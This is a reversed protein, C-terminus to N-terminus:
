KGLLKLVFANAREWQEPYTWHGTEEALFLTKPATIVNYAAYMSTPPCTVDNYGWSYFGPVKLHRAFNVVDYYKSTEIKQSTNNFSLNGANFLHPWGGARNHLYGTVDSLAPYFAVLGKIRSDLAATVISLAGGQSGGMVVINNGDFQPLSFIYDVARVCGVYVRKYYYRDKDDLNYNQYGDLSARRINDYVSAELTVPIGHIGIELTIVGKEANGVDGNYARVGAGPVRLLAPYKGEAKPVCLIGFLRSGPKYNQINVEYVNVKETCREPLLRVKADMPIKANAAKAEEWFGMFDTPEDTTPRIQEPSFAATALGVYDKGEYNAILRCRLFGADKMTGGDITTTGNKLVLNEKKVPPMMEPGVEYWVSANQVPINNKTIAVNFKVKENPKYVWDSKEPAVSVEILTQAPQALLSSTFVFVFIVSAFIQKSYKKM